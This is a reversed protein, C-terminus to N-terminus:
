LSSCNTDILSLNNSFSSFNAKLDNVMENLNFSPRQIEGLKTSLNESKIMEDFGINSENYLILAPHLIRMKKIYDFVENPINEKKLKKLDKEKLGASEDNKKMSFFDIM